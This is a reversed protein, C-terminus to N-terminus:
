VEGVGGCEACEGSGSCEDCDEDYDDACVQCTGEGKCVECDEM